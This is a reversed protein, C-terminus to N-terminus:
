LKRAFGLDAIKVEFPTIQGSPGPIINVRRVYETVDWNPALIDEKTLNPFNILINNLKLDRHMVNQAKIAM